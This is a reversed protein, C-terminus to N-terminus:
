GYETRKVEAMGHTRDEACQQHGAGGHGGGGEGAWGSGLGWWGGVAGRGGGRGM